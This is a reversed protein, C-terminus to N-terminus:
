GRMRWLPGTTLSAPPSPRPLIQRLLPEITSSQRWHRPYGLSVEEFRVGDRWDTARMHLHGHVAVDIPYRRHWDETRRTGCWVTFRPIRFLRVLDRRLPWHNILVLRHGAAVSALRRETYALRARCWDPLGAHPEFHLYKEDAAVQRVEAAWAVPDSVDDPAFSYDYLLFCPAVQTPPGEGPWVPWPDEPTLVGHRRAVNVLFNYRAVGRLQCGDRRLTWLEHNGPVWILQAFKPALSNFVLELQEVTEGIDGALILWDDPRPLV